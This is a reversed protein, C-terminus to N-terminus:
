KVSYKAIRKRRWTDLKSMLSPSICTGILIGKQYLPVKRKFIFKLANNHLYSQFKQYVQKYRKDQKNAKIGVIAGMSFLCKHLDLMLEIDTNHLKLNERINDIALDGNIYKAINFKSTASNYNNRRYYYVKRAGVGIKKCRQAFETFFFLGEGYFLDTQFKLKNDVLVSKKYIKNWSGVIIRPSLLLATAQTPSLTTIKDRLIQNENAKTFCNLSLCLEGGTKEVLGLMYEVYDDSLYDDGDVFVLYEGKSLKIGVNRAASVGTNQTHFVLIRNDQLALQDIILPTKDSSGDDIIIIEINKYSQQIISFICKEIYQEVNYAPIIISVLPKSILYNKM